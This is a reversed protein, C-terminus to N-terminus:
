AQLRERAAIALAQRAPEDRALQLIAEAWANPRMPLVLGDIGPRVFGGCAGAAAYIGAAGARTIDFFKTCSRARNFPLELLPALGIHRGPQDLFAEYAPWKMPHVVTVRPLGRYLRYTDQGGIIEFVVRPDQQQVLEMVPYLWRIEAQHSASGHYFVRCVGATGPLPQPDVRLPSWDAYKQQLWATSVWLQAQQTQLWSRHRAAQRYLKYRYRWPMGAWTVPDLVDDDMFFVVRALRGREAQVRRRWQPPLYRVFVVVAGALSAEPPMEDFRCRHVRRGQGACAPAVFYDTSPNAREEVLYVDAGPPLIELSVATRLLAM